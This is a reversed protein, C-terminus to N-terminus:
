SSCFEADKNFSRGGGLTVSKTHGHSAKAVNANIIVSQPHYANKLSDKFKIITSAYADMNIEAIIAVESRTLGM